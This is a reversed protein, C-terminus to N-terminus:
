IEETPHALSIQLSSNILDQTKNLLHFEGKSSAWRKNGM